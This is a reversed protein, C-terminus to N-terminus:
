VCRRHLLEQRTEQLSERIVTEDLPTSTEADHLASAAESCRGQKLYIRALTDLVLPRLPGDQDLARRALGEAETLRDNRAMYVMALNNNAGPHHPVLSLVQLYYGEAEALAKARYSANGLAMLAPVSHGDQRLATRYEQVALDLQQKREYAMGLAVHEQANLPDHLVVIRPLPACGQVFGCM